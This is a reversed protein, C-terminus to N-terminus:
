SDYCEGYYEILQHFDKVSIESFNGHYIRRRVDKAVELSKSVSMELKYNLYINLSSYIDVYELPCLSVLYEWFEEFGDVRYCLFFDGEREWERLEKRSGLPFSVETFCENM